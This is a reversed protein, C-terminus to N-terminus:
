VEESLTLFTQDDFPATGEQFRGLESLLMQKIREAGSASRSGELFCQKLREQGFFDGAANQADTVGDTYLLIRSRPPLDETQTAFTTEPLIGLPIGEPTILRLSDEGQASLFAPCHGASAASLRRLKTDVFVLQATIFMEVESLEEFLLSNLKALLAGPRSTMEPMARVVSRLVAAFMAAPIGKGMVDAILLLMSHEGTQIADYFDGGVERASQCSGALQCHPIRPWKKPLLAHQINRAIELERTMVRAEIEQEHLRSNAIQTALFDGFIHVINQHAFSFSRRSPLRGVTLTGLLTEGLYFPHILGFAGAHIAAIEDRSYLDDRFDFWVDRGSEVAKLETHESPDASAMVIPDLQLAPESATLVALRSDGKPVIRLVFWDATTIQILDQCLCRAFEELDDTKALEASCRFIASLTEYCSSLEEALERVTHERETEGNREPIFTEPLRFTEAFTFPNPFRLKQMYLTNGHTGRVYSVQDMLSQIIFLGRGHESWPDALEVFEPIEFGATHDEVTLEVREEKCAAEVVIPKAWGKESVHVVANNCAEVVALECAILDEEAVSQESLFNRVARAVPRVQQLDCDLTLSVAASDSSKAPSPMSKM